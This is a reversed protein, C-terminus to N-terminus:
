LSYSKSNVDYVFRRQCGLFIAWLGVFFITLFLLNHEASHPFFYFLSEPKAEWIDTCIYEDTSWVSEDEEEVLIRWSQVEAPLVADTANREVNHKLIGINRKKKAKVHTIRLFLLTEYNPKLYKQESQTKSVRTM